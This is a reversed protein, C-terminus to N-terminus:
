EEPLNKKSKKSKPLDLAQPEESGPFSDVQIKEGSDVTLAPPDLVVVGEQPSSFVGGLCTKFDDESPPAVGLSECKQTLTVYTTIGLDKLFKSLNSKRKKLLDALTLQNQGKIIYRSM